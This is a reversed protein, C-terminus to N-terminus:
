VDERITTKCQRMCGDVIMLSCEMAAAVVSGIELLEKGVPFLIIM